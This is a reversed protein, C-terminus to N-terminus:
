EIILGEKKAIKFCWPHYYKNEHPVQQYKYTNFLFGQETQYSFIDGNCYNCEKTELKQNCGILLVFVMLIFIRKM